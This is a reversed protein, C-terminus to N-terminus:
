FCEVACISTRDRELGTSIIKSSTCQDSGVLKSANPRATSRIALWRTSSITVKRGSNSGGQIPRGCTVHRM